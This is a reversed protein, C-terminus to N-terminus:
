LVQNRLSGVKKARLFAEVTAEAKAAPIVPKLKKGEFFQKNRVDWTAWWIAGMLEPGTKSLKKSMDYWVDQSKSVQIGKNALASHQWINGLLLPSNGFIELM